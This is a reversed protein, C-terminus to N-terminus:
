RKIQSIADLISLHRTVDREEKARMLDIVKENKGYLDLIAAHHKAVQEANAQRHREQQAALMAVDDKTAKGDLARSWLKMAGVGAGILTALAALLKAGLSIEEPGTDM